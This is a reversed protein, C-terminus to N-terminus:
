KTKAEFPQLHCPKIVPLEDTQPKLIDRRNVCKLEYTRRFSHTTNQETTLHYIAM